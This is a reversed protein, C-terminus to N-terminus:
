KAGGKCTRDTLDACTPLLRRTIDKAIAEAGRDLGCTIGKHSPQWGGRGDKWHSLLVELRRGRTDRRCWLRYAPTEIYAGHTWEPKIAVNADLHKAIERVLAHVNVDTM